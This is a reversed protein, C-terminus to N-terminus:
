AKRCICVHVALKVHSLLAYLSAFQQVAYAVAVVVTVVAREVVCALECALAACVYMDSSSYVCMHACVKAKKKMKLKGQVKGLTDTVGASRQLVMVKHDGVNPTGDKKESCVTVRVSEKVASSGTGTM